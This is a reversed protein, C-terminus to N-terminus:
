GDYDGVNNEVSKGEDRYAIMELEPRYKTVAEVFKPLLQPNLETIRQYIAIKDIEDGEEINFSIILKMLFGIEDSPNFENYRNIDTLAKQYQHTNIYFNARHFM